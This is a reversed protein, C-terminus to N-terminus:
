TALGKAGIDTRYHAGDFHIATVGSYARDLAARLSDGVGTVALVRGGATVIQDADRRTGAHFVTVDAPVRDLGTIPLGAKFDGPYGGSAMVVAASTANQRWRPLKGDRLVAYLDDDLLPLIAQTEPDGFRCNYELVQPGDATIMFGTFLVGSFLIDDQALGALTQGIISEIASQIPLAPTLAFSAYAGMGGTNPGRDGDDIRKHDQAPPMLSAFTGDCFALISLEYGDLAQEIVIRAGAEGAVREIMLARVAREADDACDTMYVGKGAALGDAKIALRSDGVSLLYRLAERPEAFIEFPATPIAHRAMFQKAFVKSTELQAAKQTPGYIRLGAAEFRDVIGLALASEPGVITLDPNNALAWALLGDMDTAAIPVANPTGANGPAVSVKAVQPSQALKWALAHERGGSGIVLVHADTTM